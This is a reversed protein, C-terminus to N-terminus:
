DFRGYLLPHGDKWSARLVAFFAEPIALQPLLAESEVARAVADLCMQHLEQPPAELDRTNQQDTFLYSGRADWYRERHI